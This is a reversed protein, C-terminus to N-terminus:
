VFMISYTAFERLYYGSFTHGVSLGYLVILTFSTNIGILLNDFNRKKLYNTLLYGLAFFIIPLTKKEISVPYTFLYCCCVSLLLLLKSILLNNKIQWRIWRESKINAFIVMGSTLAAVLGSLKVDRSIDGIFVGFITGLTLPLSLFTNNKKIFIFNGM